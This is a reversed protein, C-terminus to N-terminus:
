STWGGRATTAISLLRYTRQARTTRFPRRTSEGRLMSARTWSPRHETSGLRRRAGCVPSFTAMSSSPRSGARSASTPLRRIRPATRRASSSRRPWMRATPGDRSSSGAWRTTSGPGSLATPTKAVQVYAGVRTSNSPRRIAWRTRSCNPSSGVTTMSRQRLERHGM